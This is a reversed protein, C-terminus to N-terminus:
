GTQRVIHPTVIRSRGGLYVFGEPSWRVQWEGPRGSRVKLLQVNWSPFGVGPLGDDAGSALPTIKWRTTCALASVTRPHYRHVFGTVGSQEVALQLRRSANFDLEGIEGVVATLADCKLAEEITWLTDKIKRTDVFVLRHPEVGFAKLAPPFITRRTSVWLCHGSTHMLRGLLVSLFGNTCAADEPAASILEHIAGRPFIKGPLAAEMEGLGLAAPPTDTAPRREQLALIQNQLQEIIKRDAM